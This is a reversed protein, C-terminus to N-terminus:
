SPSARGVWPWAWRSPSRRADAHAVARADHHRVRHEGRHHSPDHDDKRRATSLAGILSGISIISFLVTFTADGGHFTRQVLLPMVVQFNFALTGVIAMMVLPIWLEPERRAYALGARVQRKGREAVPSRRLQAPNMMYLGVIM